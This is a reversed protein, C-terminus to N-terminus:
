GKLLEPTEHINGIVEYYNLNMGETERGSYLAPIRFHDNDRRSGFSGEYFEFVQISDHSGDKNFDTKVIDGEYIEKGNKDKIGTFQMIKHPEKNPSNDGYKKPNCFFAMCNNKIRDWNQM